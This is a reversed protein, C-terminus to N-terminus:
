RRLSDPTLVGSAYLALVAIYCLTLAVSALILNMAFTIMPLGMRRALRNQRIHSARAGARWPEPLLGEGRRQLAKMWPRRMLWLSWAWVYRALAAALRSM